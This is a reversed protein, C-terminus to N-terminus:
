SYQVSLHFYIGYIYTDCLTSLDQLLLIVVKACSTNLTCQAEKNYIYVQQCLEKIYTYTYCTDYTYYYIYIYICVYLTKGVSPIPPTGWCGFIQDNQWWIKIGEADFTLKVWYFFLFTM